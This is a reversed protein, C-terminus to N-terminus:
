PSLGFDLTWLGFDLIRLCLRPEARPFTTRQFGGWLWMLAVDLGGWLTNIAL